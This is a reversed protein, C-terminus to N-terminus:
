GRWVVSLCYTSGIWFVVQAQVASGNCDRLFIIGKQAHSSKELPIQKNLSSPTIRKRSAWGCVQFDNWYCLGKGYCKLLAERITWILTVMTKDDSREHELWFATLDEWGSTLVKARLTPHYSRFVELDVGIVTNKAIAAVAYVSSHAISLGREYTGDLLNLAYPKGTQYSDVTARIEVHIPSEIDWNRMLATKAAVRGVLWDHQRWDTKLSALTEQEYSTLWHRLFLRNSIPLRRSIEPIHAIALEIKPRSEILVIPINLTSCDRDM